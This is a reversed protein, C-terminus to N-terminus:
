TVSQGRSLSKLYGVSENVNETILKEQRNAANLAKLQSAIRSRAVRPTHQGPRVSLRQQENQQQMASAAEKHQAQLATQRQQMALQHHATAEALAKHSSDQQQRM